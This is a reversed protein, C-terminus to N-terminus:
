AKQVNEQPKSVMQHHHLIHETSIEDTCKEVAKNKPELEGSTSLLGLVVANTHHKWLHGIGEEGGGRKGMSVPLCVLM